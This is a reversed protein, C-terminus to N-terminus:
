SKRLYINGTVSRLLIKQGGGNLTYQSNGGALSIYEAGGFVDGNRPTISISDARLRMVDMGTSRTYNDDSALSKLDLNNYVNGMTRSIQFTAKETTPITVDIYGSVSALSTPEDQNIKSFVVEIDGSVTNVTFPGSSDSIKVDANLTKIELSGNYNDIVIEGNVFPNSYDLNIAIGSPVMIKYEYDRVQSVIGQISIVGNREVVNLGLSTNDEANGLLRLGDAREPQEMNFDSEIIISNGSTNQISIGGLLNTIEIRNKVKPTYEFKRTAGNGESAPSNIQAVAFIPFVFIALIITLKKM